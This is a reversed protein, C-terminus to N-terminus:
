TLSYHRFRKDKEILSNNSKQIFFSLPIVINMLSQLAQLIHM